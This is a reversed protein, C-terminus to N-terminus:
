CIIIIHIIIVGYYDHLRGSNVLYIIKHIVFSANWETEKITSKKKLVRFIQSFKAAYGINKYEYTTNLNKWNYVNLESLNMLECLLCRIYVIDDYWFPLFFECVGVLSKNKHLYINLLDYINYVNYLRLLITNHVKTATIHMLYAVVASIM